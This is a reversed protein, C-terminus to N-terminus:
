YVIELTFHRMVIMLDQLAYTCIANFILPFDSFYFSKESIEYLDQFM